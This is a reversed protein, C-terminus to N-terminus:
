TTRSLYFHNGGCHDADVLATFTPRESIGYCFTVLATLYKCPCRRGITAAAAVFRLCDQSQYHGLRCACLAATRRLSLPAGKPKGIETSRKAGSVMEGNRQPRNPRLTILAMKIRSSRPRRPAPDLLTPGAWAGVSGKPAIALIVRPQRISHTVLAM